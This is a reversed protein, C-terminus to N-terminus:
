IGPTWEGATDGKEVKIKRVRFSGSQWYDCRFGLDFNSVGAMKENVSNTVTFSYIGDQPPADLNILNSNWVNGKDWMGDASGQTWFRMAQGETAKVNRFEIEIQCTFADGEKKNGLNLSGINMCSNVENYAPQMWASWNESSGPIDMALNIQNDRIPEGAETYFSIDYAGTTENIIWRAEAYGDTRTVPHGDTDLYRRRVLRGSEDYEQAFAAYGATRFVPLGDAGLEEDTLIRHRNDYTRRFGATGDADAVGNGDADTRYQYVINGFTDSETLITIIGDVQIQLPESLSIQKSGDTIRGTEDVSGYKAEDPCGLPIEIGTGDTFCLMARSIEPHMRGSTQIYLAMDDPTVEGFGEKDVTTLLYTGDDTEAVRSSANLLRHYYGQNSPTMCVARNLVKACDPIFVAAAILGAFVFGLMPQLWKRWARSGLIEPQDGNKEAIYGYALWFSNFMIWILQPDFTGHLIAACFVLLLHVDKHDAVAKGFRILGMMLLAFFIWGYNILTQVFSSDVYNYTGLHTATAGIWVVYQGFLPVGYKDMQAQGLQLRSHVLRNLEAMWPVSADYQVSVTIIFAAALPAALVAIWKYAKRWKRLVPLIRIALDLALVTLTLVFASFTGTQTYLYIDALTLGALEPWTIREKRAAVWLLAAYFFFNAPESTYSFGLSHRGEGNRYYVFDDLLHAKCSIFVIVLAALHAIAAWKIIKKYNVGRSGVIFVWYLFAQRVGTLRMNFFLFVSVGGILLLENVRYEKQLIEPIVKIAVLFYCLIFVPKFLVSISSESYLSYSIIRTFIYLTAAFLFGKERNEKSLWDRFGTKIM